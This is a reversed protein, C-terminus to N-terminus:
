RRAERKVIPWVDRDAGDRHPNFVAVWRGDAKQRRYWEGCEHREVENLRYALWKDFALESELAPDPVPSYLDLETTRGPDYSDDVVAYIHLMPSRRTQGEYVDFSWGPKYRRAAVIVRLQEM